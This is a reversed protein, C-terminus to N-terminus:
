TFMLFFYKRGHEEQAGLKNYFGIASENWDLCSWEIGSYGDQKVYEEIKSFFKAGLGGRRNEEKLFMDELHVGGRAAFSAFVPYYIAYGVTEGNYEAILATAINKEFLWYHLDEKTATMDQPRKEYAALGKILNEILSIDNETAKRVTFNENM